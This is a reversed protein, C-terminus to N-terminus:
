PREGHRVALVRSHFEDLDQRQEIPTLYNAALKRLAQCAQHRPNDRYTNLTGASYDLRARAMATALTENQTAM